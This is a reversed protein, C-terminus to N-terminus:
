SVDQDLIVPTNYWLAVGIMAIIFTPSEAKHNFIVIWILVSGLILYRFIFVKYLKIKYFPLLFILAGLLVVMNKSLDIKFWSHLWGMVSLGYSNDHDNKLMNFFSNLLKIYQTVDIILLPLLLLILAWTFLYIASKWKQPYFVFLILGVIGFLKIFISFMIPLTAWFIKGRELLGFSFVLLGAILANSEHNQMSTILEILVILSVLGKQYDNVKPLYYIAALLVLSNLLNWLNLGLWDPM